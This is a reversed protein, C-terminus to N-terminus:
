CTKGDLVEPEHGLCHINDILTIRKINMKSNVLNQLSRAKMDEELLAHNQQTLDRMMSKALWASPSPRTCM